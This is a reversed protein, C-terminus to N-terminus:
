GARYVSELRAGLRSLLENTSIGCRAAVELADIRVGDCVGIMTAVDGAAVSPVDTVDVLLQDMCMRGVMPCRRGRLLVQGGNQCLCQPLGDAYGIVITAIRTDRLAHVAHGYGAGDGLNGRM